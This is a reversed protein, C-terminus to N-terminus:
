NSESGLDEWALGIITFPQGCGATTFGGSRGPGHRILKLVGCVSCFDKPESALKPPLADSLRHAWDWDVGRMGCHPCRTESPAIAHVIRALRAKLSM